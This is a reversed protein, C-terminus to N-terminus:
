ARNLLQLVAQPMQNAHGLMSTSAQHLINNKVYESYELAMDVDLIRSRASMVNEHSNELASHTSELRNQIAGLRARKVSIENIAKDYIHIAYNFQERGGIEYLLPDINNKFTNEYYPGFLPNSEVTAIKAAAKEEPTLLPDADIVQLDTLLSQTETLVDQKRLLKEAPTLTTNSDIENMVTGIVPDNTLAEFMANEKEEPTMSSAAIDNFVPELKQTESIIDLKENTKTNEILADFSQAKNIIDLKEKADVGQAPYGLSQIGEILQTEEEPTNTNDILGNIPGQLTNVVDLKKDKKEEDTLDPNDDIDKIIPAFTPDSDIIALRADDDPASSLANGLTYTENLIDLKEQAKEEDTLDPDNDIDQYLDQLYESANMINLKIENKETINLSPDNDVDKLFNNLYEPLEPISNFVELKGSSTKFSPLKISTSTAEYAMLNIPLHQGEEGGIQFFLTNTTQEKDNVDKYEIEDGKLLYIDNFQTQETIKNIQDSLEIMEEAMMMRDENKNSDSAGQVSLERMRQLMAHIEDMAGEFTRIFSIDDSTNRSAQKLGRLNRHMKDSIAFGAADDSAHNIRRGSSLRELTKATANVNRQYMRNTYLAPLNINIKM